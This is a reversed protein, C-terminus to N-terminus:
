KSSSITMNGVKQSYMTTQIDSGSESIQIHGKMGPSMTSSPSAKMNRSKKQM